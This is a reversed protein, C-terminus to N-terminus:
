LRHCFAGYHEIQGNWHITDYIAYGSTYAYRNFPAVTMEGPACIDPRVRGDRSPGKSSFYSIDGLVTDSPSHYIGDYTTYGLRSIYSGVSIVVDTYAGFGNVTYLNNGEMSNIVSPNHIFSFYSGWAHITSVTDCLVTLILEKSPLIGGDNRM